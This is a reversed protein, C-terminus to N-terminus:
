KQIVTYITRTFLASTATHVDVTDLIVISQTEKTEMESENKTTTTMTTQGVTAQMVM